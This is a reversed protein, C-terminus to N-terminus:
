EGQGNPMCKIDRLMFKLSSERRQEPKWLDKSDERLKKLEEELKEKEGEGEGENGNQYKREIEKRKESLEKAVKELEKLKYIHVTRGTM